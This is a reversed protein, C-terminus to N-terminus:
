FQFYIFAPNAVPSFFLILAIALFYLAWRALPAQKLWYSVQNKYGHALLFFLAFFGALGINGAAAFEAGAGGQPMHWPGGLTSFIHLAFPLDAARFFVWGIAVLPLTLWQTVARSPKAVREIILLLGHYLGWVLFTTQAGHWLGSLAFVLLIAAAWGALPLKNGGLPIYVYDRFWSSLSMHWRRWFDTISTAGYPNAFNDILTYGLMRACGRAIDTYGSFDAFIQVTFALVGLLTGFASYTQHGSFVPDALLALRDAVVMKQVLGWLVLRGGAILNLPLFPKFTIQPMFHGPREIPGAVLQPFFFIYQSFRWFNREAVFRGKYVDITYAIGQFTHFSLGLPVTAALAFDIGVLGLAWGLYKFAFLLALNSGISALLWAKKYTSSRAIAMGAAYDIALQAALIGVYAPKYLAYFVVSCLVVWRLQRTGRLLYYVVFTAAFFLWYELSIFHM